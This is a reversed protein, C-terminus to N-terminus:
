NSPPIQEPDAICQAYRSNMRNRLDPNEPDDNLAEWIGDAKLTSLTCGCAAECIEPADYTDQCAMTCNGVFARGARDLAPDQLAVVWVLGYLVPQHLLYIALSHRGILRTFSGVTGSFALGSLKQWVPLVRFSRSLALGALTVGTWPAVPVYDVSAFSPAGLGTWLFLQGDFLPSAAWVPLSLFVTAGAFAAWLPLRTFPLAILSSLAISHLIGFRVFSDGFAFYTVLSVAAAAAVIVAFRRWFPRWRIGAHHALDLSIGALFLFSGAIAAAFQRWGSGQAVPWDVFGFWSLDWSLHYVAMAVVALGRALDIVALRRAPM